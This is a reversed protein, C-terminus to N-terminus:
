KESNAEIRNIIIGRQVIARELSRVYNVKLRPNRVILGPNTLSTFGEECM